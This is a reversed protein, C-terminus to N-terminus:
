HTTRTASKPDTYEHKHKQKQKSRTKTQIPALSGTLLMYSCSVAARTAVKRMPLMILQSIGWKKGVCAGIRPSARTVKWSKRGSRGPNGRHPRRHTRIHTSSLYGTLTLQASHDGTPSAERGKIGLHTHTLSLSLSLSHTHTHTHSLSLPPANYVTLLLQM